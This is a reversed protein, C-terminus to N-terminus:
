AVVGNLLEKLKLYLFWKNCKAKNKFYTVRLDKSIQEKLTLAIFDEWFHNM